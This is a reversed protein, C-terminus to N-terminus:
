VFREILAVCVEDLLTEARAALTVSYSRYDHNDAVDRKMAAAAKGNPPVFIIFRFMGRPQFPSPVHRLLRHDCTDKM